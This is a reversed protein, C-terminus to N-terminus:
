NWVEETSKQGRTSWGGLGGLAEEMPCLDKSPSAIRPGNQAWHPTVKDESSMSPVLHHLCGSSSAQGEVGVLLPCVEPKGCSMTVGWCPCPSRLSPSLYAGGHRGQWGQHRRWQCLHWYSTVLNGIAKAVLTRSEKKRGEAPVHLWSLTLQMVRGQLSGWGFCSFLFHSPAPFKDKDAPNEMWCSM